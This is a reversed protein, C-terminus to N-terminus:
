FNVMSGCNISFLNLYGSYIVLAFYIKRILNRYTISCKKKMKSTQKKSKMRQGQLKRGVGQREWKKGLRQGGGGGRRAPKYTHKM